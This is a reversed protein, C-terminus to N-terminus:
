KNSSRNSLYLFAGIWLTFSIAIIISTIAVDGASLVYQFTSGEMARGGMM